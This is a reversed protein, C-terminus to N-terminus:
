GPAPGPMCPLNKVKWSLPWRTSVLGNASCTPQKEQNNNQCLGGATKRVLDLLVKKQATQARSSSGTEVGLDLVVHKEALYKYLRKRKDVDEATLVLINQRPFARIGTNEGAPSSSRGPRSRSHMTGSPRGYEALLEGTWALDTRPSPLVSCNKGSPAPSFLGPDNEPDAPNLGATELM